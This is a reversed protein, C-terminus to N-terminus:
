GDDDSRKALWGSRKLETRYSMADAVADARTHWRRAYGIANGDIRSEVGDEDVYHLEAYVRRGDRQLM